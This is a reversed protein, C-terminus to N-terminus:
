GRGVVAYYEDETLTETVGDKVRQYIEKGDPYTFCEYKVNDFTEANIVFRISGDTEYYTCTYQDTERNGLETVSEKLHDANYKVHGVLDGNEDYHFDYESDGYKQAVTRSGNSYYREENGNVVQSTYYGYYDKQTTAIVNGDEDYATVAGGEGPFQEDLHQSLEDNPGTPAGEPKNQEVFKNYDPIEKGDRAYYRGDKYTAVVNNDKDYVTVTGDEGEVTKGGFDNRDTIEPAPSGGGHSEGQGHEPAEGADGGQHGEAQQGGEPKNESVFKEYDPIEKGDRAYYRGDKYTAVVNNDKDYVTVTGDEGEVTKGGFDNRDTIEPAPSGGGHSEGQGHEPAEGADGGQHGEAQQGGEPKNQEKFKEFDPIEKGDRAYYKGDKYTAVVNNDKDYITITGDEGKVTKGGFENQDTVEPAQSQQGGEPQEGDPAGEPKMKKVFEEYDPIENGNRDYYKGDKYTAVINNDKDYITITGDEGQVTKGGFENKDTIEPPKVEKSGEPRDEGPKQGGNNGGNNGGQEQGEKPANEKLWQEYAKKDGIETGDKTYYKGNEYKVALKGDKDYYELTGDPKQITKGGFENKETVVTDETSYNKEKLWNNYAESDGIENGDADYYKDGIKKAVLKGDKDYFEISGDEKEITKGGFNNKENLTRDLSKTYDNEILWKRYDGYSGDGILNGDGDYYLGDAGRKAILKGDKDYYEISGDDAVVTKGGFMNYSEPITSGQAISSDIIAKADNSLQAYNSGSNSVGNNSSVYSRAEQVGDLTGANDRYTANADVAFESNNAAIIAVTQAWNDFNEHFDQFTAANYDWINILRGGLDGYASSELSANVNTEVFANLQDLTNAFDTFYGEITQMKTKVGDVRFKESGAM